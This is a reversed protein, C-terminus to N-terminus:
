VFDEVSRYDSYIALNVSSYVCWSLPRGSYQKTTFPIQAVPYKERVKENRSKMKKDNMDKNNPNHNFENEITVRIARVKCHSCVWIQGGKAQAPLWRVAAFGDEIASPLRYETALRYDPSLVVAQLDFALRLCYNQCNPWTRSGICFGGGHIYYFIPLKTASSASAPNYLRLHLNHIPDFQIDKWIVFGDGLRHRQLTAIM